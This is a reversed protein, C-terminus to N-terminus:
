SAFEVKEEEAQWAMQQEHKRLARKLKRLAQKRTGGNASMCLGLANPRAVGTAHAIWGRRSYRRVTIEYRKQPNTM